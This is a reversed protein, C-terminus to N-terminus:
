MFVYILLHRNAKKKAERCWSLDILNQHCNLINNQLPFYFFSFLGVKCQFDHEPVTVAHAKFNLIWM